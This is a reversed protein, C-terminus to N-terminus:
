LQDLCAPTIVPLVLVWLPLALSHHLSPLFSSQRSLVWGERVPEQTNLRLLHCQSIEDCLNTYDSYM